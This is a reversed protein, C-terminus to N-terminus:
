GKAFGKTGSLRLREIEVPNPRFRGIWGAAARASDTVARFTNLKNPRLSLIRVESGM